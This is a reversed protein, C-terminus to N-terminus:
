LLIMDYICNIQASYMAYNTAYMTMYILTPIRHTLVLQRSFCLSVHKYHYIFDTSAVVTIHDVNLSVFGASHPYSGCHYTHIIEYKTHPYFIFLGCLFSPM